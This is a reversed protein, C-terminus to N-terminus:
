GPLLVGDEGGSPLHRAQETEPLHTYSVAGLVMFLIPVLIYVLKPKEKLFKKIKSGIKQIIEKIRRM